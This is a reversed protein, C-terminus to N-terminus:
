KIQEFTMILFDNCNSNQLSSVSRKHWEISKNEDCQEVSEDTWSGNLQKWVHNTETWQSEAFVNQLEIVNHWNAFAIDM